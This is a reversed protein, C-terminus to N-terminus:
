AEVPEPPPRVIPIRERPLSVSAAGAVPEARSRAKAAEAWALYEALEEESFDCM